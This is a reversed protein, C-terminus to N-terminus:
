VDYMLENQERSRFDAGIRVGMSGGRRIATDAEKLKKRYLTLSRTAEEASLRSFGDNMILERAFYVVARTLYRRRGAQNTTPAINQIMSILRAPYVMSFICLAMVVLFVTFFVHTQTYWAQRNVLERDLEEMTAATIRCLSDEKEEAQQRTECCGENGCRPRKPCHVLGHL